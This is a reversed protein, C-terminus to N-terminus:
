ISIWSKITIKFKKHTHCIRKKGNLKVLPKEVIEIKMRELLFSLDNLLDHLKQPYEVDVEFFYGENSGENDNIIFDENFQSTNESM